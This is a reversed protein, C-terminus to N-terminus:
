QLGGAISTYVLSYDGYGLEDVFIFKLGTEMGPHVYEPILPDGRVQYEWIEYARNDYRGRHRTRRLKEELTIGPDDIEQPLVYLLLEEDQPNLNLTVEDPPGYRIFVRGRDTEMGLRYGTFRRNAEALREYFKQEVPNAQGSPTPAQRNWFDRLFAEQEGRGLTVFSDYAASALLVRAVARLDFEDVLWRREEWLVQFRGATEGIRAGSQPDTVEIALRYAGSPLASIDFRELEWRPVSDLQTRETSQLVLAEEPLHLIRYAVELPAGQPLELSAPTGYREWYVSLVPQYLGYFRYPNPRLRSRVSRLGPGEQRGEPAQGWAFLLGSVPLSEPDGGPVVLRAAAEGYRHVGRLKDLLGRKLTSEDEIRVRLGVTGPVWKPYLRIWQSPVPFAGVDVATTDPALQMSTVYAARSEGEWDLMEVRVMVDISDGSSEFSERPLAIEVEIAPAGAEQFLVADVQFHLDGRAEIPFSAQLPDSGFRPWIGIV